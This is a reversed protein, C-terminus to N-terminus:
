LAQPTTIFTEEENYSEPFESLPIFILNQDTITNAFIQVDEVRILEYGESRAYLNVIGYPREPPNPSQSESLDPVRIAIPENLQGSRNTLRFALVENNQDTVTIAADQLPIQAISSFAYIQLYGTAPLNVAEKGHEPYYICIYLNNHQFYTIACIIETISLLHDYPRFQRRIRYLLLVIQLLCCALLLSVVLVKRCYM